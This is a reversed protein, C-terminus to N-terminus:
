IKGRESTAVQASETECDRDHTADATSERATRRQASAEQRQRLKEQKRSNKVRERSAREQYYNPKLAM